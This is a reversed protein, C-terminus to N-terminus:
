ENFLWYTEENIVRKKLGVREKARKGYNILQYIDNILTGSDAFYSHHLLSIDIGTADITEIGDVVLIGKESDGARTHGNIKSSGKLALDDSSTYMTVNDFRNTIMPAIDRKFIEADVDPAALIVEKIKKQNGKLDLPMTALAKSLGQNGMSHGVLYINDCDLKNILDLIFNRINGESWEINQQDVTYQTIEGQSPWSYFIPIGKFGLDYSMQATRRAADNFSVNYGHIFVFIDNEGIKTLAENISALYAEKFLTKKNLVVIHKEPNEFYAIAPSELEGMRHDRPISVNCYGYNVQKARDGGFEVENDSSILIKRDTGFYTKIIAYKQDDLTYAQLPTKYIAMIEDLEEDKKISKLSKAARYYYLNDTEEPFEEISKAYWKAADTYDGNFYYTDAIKQYLEASKYGDSILDLYIDRAEIYSYQEFEKDAKQLKTKQAQATITFSFAMGLILMRKLSVKINNFFTKSLM